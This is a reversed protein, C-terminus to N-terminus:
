KKLDLNTIDIEKRGKTLKELKIILEEANISNRYRKNPDIFKEALKIIRASREVAKNLAKNKVNKNWTSIDDCIFKFNEELNESYRFPIQKM